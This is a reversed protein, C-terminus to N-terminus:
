GWAGPRSRSREAALRSDGSPPGVASEHTSRRSGAPIRIWSAPIPGIGRRVGTRNTRASLGETDLGEARMRVSAPVAPPVPHSGAGEAHHSADLWAALPARAVTPMGGLTQAAGPVLHAGDTVGSIVSMPVHLPTNRSAPLAEPVSARSVISPSGSSSAPHHTRCRLSSLTRASTRGRWSPM